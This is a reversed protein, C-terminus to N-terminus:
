SALAFDVGRATFQEVLATVAAIPPTAGAIEGALRNAAQQTSGNRLLVELVAAIERGVTFARHQRSDFLVHSQESWLILLDSRIATRSLEPEMPTIDGHIGSVWWLTRTRLAMTRMADIAALMLRRAAITSPTLAANIEHSVCVDLGQNTWATARAAIMTRSDGVRGLPLGTPTTRIINDHGVHLRPLRGNTTCPRGELACRDGIEVAASLLAPEITGTHTAAQAERGFAEADQKDALRIVTPGAIAMFRASYYDMSQLWFDNGVQIEDGPADLEGQFAMWRGQIGTPIERGKRGRVLIMTDPTLLDTDANALWPVHDADIVCVSPYMGGPRDNRAWTTLVTSLEQPSVAASTM